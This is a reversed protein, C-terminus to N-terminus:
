STDGEQYYIDAPVIRYYIGLDPESDSRIPRVFAARCQGDGMAGQYGNLASKLIAALEEAEEESEACCAFEAYEHDPTTEGSHTTPTATYFRKWSIAPYEAERPLRVRYMGTNELGAIALVFTKIDAPFSM